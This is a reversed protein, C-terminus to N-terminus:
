GANEFVPIGAKRLVATPVDGLNYYRQDEDAIGRNCLELMMSCANFFEQDIAKGDHYRPILVVRKAYDAELFYWNLDEFNPQRSHDTGLLGDLLAPVPYVTDDVGLRGTPSYVAMIDRYLINPEEDRMLGALDKQQFNIRDGFEPNELSFFLTVDNSRSSKLEELYSILDFLTISSENKPDPASEFIPPAYKKGEFEFPVSLRAAAQLVREEIKLVVAYPLLVTQANHGSVQLTPMLASDWPDWSEYEELPATIGPIKYGEEILRDLFAEAEASSMNRPNFEIPLNLNDSHPTLLSPTDITDLVYQGDVTTKGDSATGM